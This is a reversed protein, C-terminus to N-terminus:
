GITYVTQSRFSGQETVQVRARIGKPAVVFCRIPPKSIGVACRKVLVNVMYRTYVTERRGLHLNCPTRHPPTPVFSPSTVETNLLNFRFIRTDHTEPRVEEMTFERYETKSMGGLATFPHRACCAPPVRTSLSVTIASPFALVAWPM